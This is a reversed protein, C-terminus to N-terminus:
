YPKKNQPKSANPQYTHEMSREMCFGGKENEDEASHPDSLANNWADRLMQSRKDNCKQVCVAPSMDLELQYKSAICPNSVFYIMTDIAQVNDQKYHDVFAEALQSTKGGRANELQNICAEFITQFEEGQFAQNPDVDKDQQNQSYGRGKMVITYANIWLRAVDYRASDLANDNHTSDNRMYDNENGKKVLYGRDDKYHTNYIQQMQDFNFLSTSDMNMIDINNVVRKYDLAYEQLHGRNVSDTNSEVSAGIKDEATTEHALVKKVRFENDYSKNYARLNGNEDVKLGQPITWNGLVGVLQIDAVGSTTDIMVQDQGIHPNAAIIANVVDQATNYDIEQSADMERTIPIFERKGDKGYRFVGEQSYDKDLLYNAEYYWGNKLHQQTFTENGRVLLTPGNATEKMDFKNNDSNLGQENRLSECLEKIVKEREERQKKLVEEDREQQTM